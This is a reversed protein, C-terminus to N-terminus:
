KASSDPLKLYMRNNRDNGYALLLSRLAPWDAAPIESRTLQLERIIVLEKGHWVSTVQFRGVGNTILTDSPVRVVSCSSSDIRLEIREALPSVLSVPATRVTRYVQLDAPLRDLIGDRLRGMVFVIRGLPDNEPPTMEASFTSTVNLTDNREPNWDTVTTVPLCGALLSSLYSRGNGAVTWSRFGTVMAGKAEYSGSCLFRAKPRDYTLKVRVNQSGPQASVARPTSGPEPFWLSKGAQVVLDSEIRDTAPYYWLETNGDAVRLAIIPLSTLSPVFDGQPLPADSLLAPSVKFGVHRFLSAALRARDLRHAYSTAYVREAPRPFSWWHTVPYDIPTMRDKLYSAISNALERKTSAQFEISDLASAVESPLITDPVLAASAFRALDNWSPWTSWVLYPAFSTLNGPRPLPANEIPGMQWRTVSLGTAPDVTSTAPTVSHYTAVTPQVSSPSRVEFWSQLCAEDRVFCWSDDAGHRFPTRDDIRYAIELICPVEVGSALLMMERVGAYDYAHELAFPLTEVFASSDANWWRGDRWVRLALPTFTCHEQDFPVRYDGFKDVSLDSNLRIIRHVLTSIRGDATATITTGDSLLYADLKSTDFQRAATAMLAGIDQKGDYSTQALTTPAASLVSLVLIITMLALYRIM